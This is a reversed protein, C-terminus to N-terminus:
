RIAEWLIGIIIVIGAISIAWVVLTEVVEFLIDKM